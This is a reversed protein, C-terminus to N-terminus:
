NTSANPFVSWVYLTNTNPDRMTVAELGTGDDDNILQLQQVEQFWVFPVSYVVVKYNCSLTDMVQADSDMQVEMARTGEDDNDTGDTNLQVPVAVMEGEGNPVLTLVVSGEEEEDQITAVAAAEESKPQQLFLHNFFNYSAIAVFCVKRNRVARSATTKSETLNAATKERLAALADADIGELPDMGQESCALLLSVDSGDRAHM